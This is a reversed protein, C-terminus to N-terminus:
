GITYDFNIPVQLNDVNALAVLSIQQQFNGYLIANMLDSVLGILQLRITIDIPTESNAAVTVAEFDSVNGIKYQQGASM